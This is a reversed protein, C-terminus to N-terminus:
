EFDTINKQVASRTETITKIGARTEKKARILGGDDDYEYFSAYNNEDLEAALRLTVPDYVFSKMNANFPHIRLDDIFAAADAPAQFDFILKPTGSPVTFVVEFQQWGEIIKGKPKFSEEFTSSEDRVKFGNTYNNCKCDAGDKKMWVSAVMKKGAVLNFSDTFQHRITQITDLKTCYLTETVVTGDALSEQGEPYLHKKDIRVFMNSGPTKWLLQIWGGSTAQKYRVEITHLTGASLYVSDRLHEGDGYASTLLTGNIYVHGEDDTQGLGFHYYGAKIVQLKGTWKASIEKCGVESPPNTYQVNPKSSECLEGNAKLYLFPYEPSRVTPTGAYSLNGYYNGKLGTGKPTVTIVEVPTTITKIRVDPSSVTDEETINVPIEYTENASVRLSYKGTHAATDVLNNDPVIGTAFHRKFPKCFPECPDDKYYYDEFGDFASLRLRSNNVVAIPLTEQYGYIGANYRGLPDRNELEAGKRNYQTIESNWVWKSSGSRTLKSNVDAGLVWYTEFDKIIGDKRIDTGATPDSERREGYYVMSKWGRWNGLIGQVYPNMQKKDFHSLCITTLADNICFQYGDPATTPAEDIGGQYVLENEPVCYYYKIELRPAYSYGTIDKGWFCVRAPYDIPIVHELNVRLATAYNKALDYKDRIMNKVLSTVDIREDASGNIAYSKTSIQPPTGTKFVYDQPDNSVKYFEAEWEENTTPLPSQMRSIKFDNRHKPYSIHPSTVGHNTENHSFTHNAQHSILNLKASQIKAGATISSLDYLLWSKQNYKTRNGDEDHQRAVFYDTNVFHTPVDPNGNGRKTFYEISRNGTPAAVHTLIPAKRITRFVTDKAYFMDNARWREKFEVAGTNLVDADNNIAIKEKGILADYVIPRKLSVVSGASASTLNRKGSRIVRITAQAANVPNGNRDIFIFEKTANRNDKRVDVAWIRYEQTPALTNPYGAVICGPTEPVVGSNHELFIEDGSEFNEMYVHDSNEIRGNRFFVNKYLLDINRYAPEMGSHVWWAPYNFQYVPKNFSNNTRTLLAEGSEADFVLNKTGVVSGKDINIVSDLIGYENVVKVTVASRYRSENRFIMRFVSPIIVPFIGITFFDANIPVSMSSTYSFHERFDNMVEVDKGILKNTIVGDPGSIVPLINDLKFKNNGASVTRYINETYNVPTSYDNEPYSAQSKLKGNMDNLVIRFGQTLTMYDKKNFNFVAEIVSPKHHHRSYQDFSTFEQIIPFDRSTYFETQQLGIGSKINKDSKNHISKVSVKSYGVSPAPFFTEAFPLEVNSYDTPGLFQKESYKLVERFPNEENGIGPEYTAVGSSITEMEGAVFEEKTYTYVQGYMSKYQGTMRDWSDNITIRKIRHGGGLKKFSPNNLRAFSKALVVERCKGAAKLEKEFGLVGQTFANIVGLMARILQVPAIAGDTNVEFGPYARHPLQDKLFQMITEMVPSGGGKTSEFEIYFRQPNSTVNYDKIAGYITIPEYSTSQGVNGRPVKVWLKLLLQRIDKLYKEAIEAKGSLNEPVDFFVFRHDMLGPTENYPKHYSYLENSVTGTATPAFGAITMMQSARKNQVFAYDDAEYEAKLVAGGPLLIETLNWASAYADSLTKNQLTYPFDNNGLDEPNELHNKYTGWRDSEVPSYSPNTSSYKFRYRNKVQTNNGNYSFWIAKLTLKGHAANINSGSVIESVGDNSPYEPCLSYDYAFHVTKIPKADAGYKLFDAKTYLNIKDLKKQGNASSALGGNEGQVPKGDRRESIHFTAVMNKSEISHMYWLEKEGYTYLGKDDREDAKLEENYSAMNAAVPTRWKFPAWYNQGLAIDPQRNVRSYNFKIATGLDDDTIGDGTVDVYDPSLIGTLLFSHAYGGVTEAQFFGDRGSNNETTNQKSDYNVQQTSVIKQSPDVSFTVERQKIQYVPIGYVYRRGDSELVDIESLHHRKRYFTPDNYNYRSIATKYMDNASGICSGPRFQNETYSYINKDLGIKSAEDATFYTIVQARKDRKRATSKTVGITSVPKKEENFVQYGSQLLPSTARTNTLYPRILKDEGLANYYGEDIIAKEGPNKFYFSQYLTDSENFKISEKLANGGTWNHVFSPSSTGGITVGGHFIGGGGLDFDLSGSHAKTASEHDRVYGMNGRFGRFMGGTGEGSINFVDYTYVPVSIVPTKYTYVGDNLRNFDMLANKDDGSKEYYMYGYAPKKQKKDEQAIRSEQLYGSIRGNKFLAMKETGLKASLLYNSRTVPMRISPTFSSRAFSIQVVDYSRSITNQLVYDCNVNWVKYRSYEGNISLDTLGQRSSYAASTSLGMQTKKQKNFVYVSFGGNLTMGNQSNLNIGASLRGSIGRITDMLTKEDVAKTALLKQTSYDVGIGGELGLGRKNNYFIGVNVNASLSGGNPYGAIEFGSSGGIGITRDPRISQEKTISDDGNYDDPLGRMNRSITGPNINWGLGTWSSEQDMTAGANYFINVPYGGVDLLPINYSFDGSFLSVMNDAGISRFATMEPQGPGGIEVKDLELNETTVVEPMEPLPQEAKPATNTEGENNVAQPYFKNGPKTNMLFYAPKVRSLSQPMFGPTRGAAWLSAALEGYLVFFIVWATHKQYKGTLFRIM